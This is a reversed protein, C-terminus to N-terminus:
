AAARGRGQRAGYAREGGDLRFADMSQSLQDAMDSLAAAAAATEETAAANAQIGAELDVLTSAMSSVDRAQERTALAISEVGRAVGEVEQSMASLSDSLTKVKGSGDKVTSMTEDIVARVSHSAEASAQALRRVEVAVVAFGQGAEGARAAEVSANLALLNTQFALDDMVGVIDVIRGAQTEIHNMAAVAMGAMSVGQQAGHATRTAGRAAEDVAAATDDCSRALNQVTTAVQELRAAQKETTLSLEHMASSIEVSGDRATASAQVAQFLGRSLAAAALNFNTAVVGLRGQFRDSMRATLDGNALRGLSQEAESLFTDCAELVGNLGSVVETLGGQEDPLAARESFDGSRAKEVVRGVSQSLQVELQTRAEEARRLREAQREADEASMLKMANLRFVEVAQAMPGIEDRSGLGPVVIDTKGDALEAMAERIRDFRRLAGRTVIVVAGAGLALALVVLLVARIMRARNSAIEANWYTSAEQAALAVFGSIEDLGRSSEAMFTKFDVGYAPQAKAAEALLQERLKAYSGFYSADVKAIAASISGVDPLQASVVGTVYWANLARKHNQAMESRVSEPLPRGTAVAWALWTRERGAYERTEWVRDELTELAIVRTSVDYSADRLYYRYRVLEAVIDMIAGPLERVRDAPRDALKQQSLRDV